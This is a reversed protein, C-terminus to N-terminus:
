KIQEELLPVYVKQMEIVHSTLSPVGTSQNLKHWNITQFLHYIFKPYYGKKIESWFPAQLFNGNPHTSAFDHFECSNKDVFKYM